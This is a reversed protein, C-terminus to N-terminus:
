GGAQRRIARLSRLEEIMPGIDANGFEGALTRELEDMRYILARGDVTDAFHRSKRMNDTRDRDNVRHGALMSLQWM